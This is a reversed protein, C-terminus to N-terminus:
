VSLAMIIADEFAQKLAIPYYNKRINITKFGIKQYLSIARTNSARVELFLTKASKSAVQRIVEQLLKAGLRQGQYNPHIALDLLEAQEPLWLVIAVGVLDTAIQLTLVTYKADFYDTIQAITRPAQYAEQLLECVHPLQDIKAIQISPQTISM